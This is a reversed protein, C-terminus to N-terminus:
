QKYVGYLWIGIILVFIVTILGVIYNEFSYSGGWKAPFAGGIEDKFKTKCRKFLWRILAGLFAVWSASM